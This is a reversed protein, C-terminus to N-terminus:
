SFRKCGSRSARSGTRSCGGAIQLMQRGQVAEGGPNTREVPQGLRALDLVLGSRPDIEQIRDVVRQQVCQLVRRTFM